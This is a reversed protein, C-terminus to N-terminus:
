GDDKIISRLPVADKNPGLSPLFNKFENMKLDSLQVISLENTGSYWIIKDKEGSCYPNRIHTAPFEFRTASQQRVVEKGISTCVVLDNSSTEQYMLHGSPTSKM